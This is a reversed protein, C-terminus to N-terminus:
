GPSNQNDGPLSLLIVKATTWLKKLALHIQQPEIKDRTFIKKKQKLTMVM